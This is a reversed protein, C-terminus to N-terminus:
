YGLKLSYFRIKTLLSDGNGVESILNTKLLTLINERKMISKIVFKMNIGIKYSRCNYSNPGAEVFKNSPNENRLIKSRIQEFVQVKSSMKGPCSM